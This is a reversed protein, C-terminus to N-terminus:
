LFMGQQGQVRTNDLAGARVLSDGLNPGAQRFAKIDTVGRHLDLQFAAGIFGDGRRASCNRECKYRRDRALIVFFRCPYVTAAPATAGAQPGTQSHIPMGIDIAACAVDLSDTAFTLPSVITTAHVTCFPRKAFGGEGGALMDLMPLIKYLHEGKTISTAIHKKTGAACAYITNVDLEFLDEIETAVVPRTFWQINELTDCLRALNYLDELTSPRYERQDIDLMTVAAGGTCFNIKGNRAEFDFEPDRGHVTFQKSACGLMDEILAPPFILRGKDNLYCGNSLASELVRPTPNAIGVQELLKLAALHIKEVEQEKLPKFIPSINTGKSMSAAIAGTKRSQRMVDRPRITSRRSKNASRSM